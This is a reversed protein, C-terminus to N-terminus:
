RNDMAGLKFAEQRIAETQMQVSKRKGFNPHTAMITEALYTHSNDGGVDLTSIALFHSKSLPVIVEAGHRAAGPFIPLGGMTRQSIRAAYTSPPTGDPGESLQAYIWERTVVDFFYKQDIGVPSASKSQGLETLGMPALLEQVIVGPPQDKDNSTAPNRVRLTRVIKGDRFWGNGSPDAIPEDTVKWASPYWFSFGFGSDVYRSAGVVATQSQASASFWALAITTLAPVLNRMLTPKGRAM